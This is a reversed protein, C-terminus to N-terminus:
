ENVGELDEGGEGDTGAEEEEESEDFEEDEYNYEGPELLGDSDEDEGASEEELDISHEENGDRDSISEESEQIDYETLVEEHYKKNFQKDSLTEDPHPKPQVSDKVNPLFAVSGPDVISCQEIHRLGKFWTPSYFDIPLGRPPAANTSNIPVRPQVHVCM